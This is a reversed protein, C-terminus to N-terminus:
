AFVELCNEHEAYFEAEYIDVGDETCNTQDIDAKSNM